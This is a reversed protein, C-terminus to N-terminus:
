NPAFHARYSGVEAQAPFGNLANFYLEFAPKGNQVDWELVDRETSPNTGFGILLNNNPMEQVSGRYSSTQFGTASPDIRGTNPFRWEQSKTVRKTAQDIHAAVVRSSKGRVDCLSQGSNADVAHFRPLPPGVGICTTNNDFFLLSGDALLRASHQGQPIQEPQLNFDDALGGYTWIISGDQRGIKMIANLNRFSAIINGDLPDVVISNFHAYDSWNGPSYEAGEESLAYLEPHDSSSWEFVVAGDKVEQLVSEVVPVTGSVGPVDAANRGYYGSVIYHGEGLLLFDHNESQIFPRGRASNPFLGAVEQVPRFDEGLIIVKGEAYGIPLIREGSIYTYFNRGAFTYKKFDSYQQRGSERRFFVVRGEEDLVLLYSKIAGGGPTLLLEGSASLRGEVTFSPFDKPRMRIRFSAPRGDKQIYEVEIDDEPSSGAAAILNISNTELVQGNVRVRGGGSAVISMGLPQRLHRESVSYNAGPAVGSAPVGSDDHLLVGRDLEVGVIEVRDLQDSSGGGCGSLGIAAVAFIAFALAHTM